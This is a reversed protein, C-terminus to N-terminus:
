LLNKKKYWQITENLGKKLNYKPKFNFDKVLDKSDCLWNSQSIDKYKETNLTPVKGFLLCSLQEGVSAMVQVLFKPFVIKITKKNLEKKLLNNFEIATYNNLDSIFYSKQIIDNELVDILLRVLDKVYVFSLKQKKSGIYTEVGRNIAQYMVYYDKERPGYV